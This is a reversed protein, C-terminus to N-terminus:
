GSSSLGIVLNVVGVITLIFLLGLILGIIIFHSLKGKSFDRARNNESQVGLFAMLVSKVLEGFSLSQDDQQQPENM